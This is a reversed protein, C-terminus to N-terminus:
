ERRCKPYVVSERPIGHIDWKDSTNEEYVCSGSPEHTYRSFVLSEFSIRYYVVRFRQMVLIYENDYYQLVGSCLFVRFQILPLISAGDM